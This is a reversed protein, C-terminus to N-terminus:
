KVGIKGMIKRIIKRDEKAPSFMFTITIIIFIVISNILFWMIVNSINKTISFVLISIIGTIFIYFLTKSKYPYIKYIIAVEIFKM